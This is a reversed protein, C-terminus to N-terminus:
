PMTANLYFLEYDSELDWFKFHLRDAKPNLLSSAIEKMHPPISVAGDEIQQRSFWKLDARGSIDSEVIPKDDTKTILYLHNKVPIHGCDLTAIIYAPSGNTVAIKCRAMLGDAAPGIIIKVRRQATDKPEKDGESPNIYGGPLIWMNQWPPQNQLALLVTDHSSRIFGLGANSTPGQVRKRGLEIAIELYGSKYLVVFVTLFALVLPILVAIVYFWLIEGQGSYKGILAAIGCFLVLIM